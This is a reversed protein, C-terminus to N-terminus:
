LLYKLGLLVWGVILFLGGLPTIPGLFKKPKQKYGLYILGYISGSFLLIGVVFCCTLAVSLSDEWSLSSGCWLLALAHFMQYRIATELSHLQDITLKSQLVHAGFAGLIVATGGLIAAFSIVIDQM